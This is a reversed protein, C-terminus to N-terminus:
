EGIVYVGRVVENWESRTAHSVLCLKRPLDTSTFTGCLQKRNEQKGVFQNAATAQNITDQAQPRPRLMMLHNLRADGTTSRLYTKVRFIVAWKHCENSSNGVIVQGPHLDRVSWCPFWWHVSFIINPSWHQIRVRWVGDLCRSLSPTTVAPRWTPPCRFRWWLNEFKPWNLLHAPFIMYFTM